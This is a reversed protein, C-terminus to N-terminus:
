YNRCSINKILLLCITTLHCNATPLRNLVCRGQQIDLLLILKSMFNVRGIIRVQLSLSVPSRRPNLSQHFSLFQSGGFSLTGHSRQVFLSCLPSRSLNFSQHILWNLHHVTYILSRLTSSFFFSFFFFSSTTKSPTPRSWLLLCIPLASIYQSM